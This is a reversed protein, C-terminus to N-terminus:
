RSRERTSLIPSAAEDYKEGNWETNAALLGTRLVGLRATATPPAPDRHCGGGGGPGPSQVAVAWEAADQSSGHVGPNNVWKYLLKLPARLNSGLEM